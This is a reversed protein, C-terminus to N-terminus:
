PSIQPKYGEQSEARGVAEQQEREPESIGDLVKSNRVTKQLSQM